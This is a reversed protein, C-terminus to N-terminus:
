LLFRSLPLLNFASHLIPYSQLSLSPFVESPPASELSLSSPDQPDLFLSQLSLFSAARHQHDGADGRRLSGTCTVLSFHGIRIVWGIGASLLSVIVVLSQRTSRRECDVSALSYRPLLYPFRVPHPPFPPHPPPALGLLTKRAHQWVFVKEPTELRTAIGM